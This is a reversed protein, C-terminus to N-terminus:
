KENTTIYKADFVAVMAMNVIDKVDSGMQLIHVPKQLGLLIPGILEDSDRIGDMMRYSINGANLNPFILTNAATGALKSFPYNEKIKDKSLAIDAQFEGDVVMDPYKHHLMKVAQSVGRPSPMDSSGMNSYSLLAIRPDTGFQKVADHTLKTIEVIEEATPDENLAVDSLFVPGHHTVVIMMGVARTTEDRLDIVQLIPKASAAYSRTYGTVMADADGIDVMASGFYNRERMKKKADYLRVGRRQKKKWYHNAYRERHAASEESKPDYIELNDIDLNLDHEQILYQIKAKDGLLVLEAVGDEKCVEAAKLVNFEDAECFVLRKTSSPATSKAQLMKTIENTVGVRAELKTSYSEWDMETLKAVGSEMAAKGVAMSVQVALRPDFPKPIFYDKGFSLNMENYVSSVEQPVVEKALNAVAHVAAIKMEMNITSARVDLAGRFIYPFGLVNNVQNPHDSRGTSMLVDDRTQMALDYDIEPTPNAMAFVIPDKAMSLLMEPSLVDGKSLGIFVDSDKLAEELTYIPQKTAFAKKQESLSDYRDRHIIGKSDAMLINEQKAGLEIYINSCSIAAAGAGNVVIRVDEIKKNALELANLLAAGSIIATGHQDDHMVPIDLENKLREEIKFAEPAKIDELNIGGFTPAIAKVIEVFKDPNKEDVEIDFVDIDAFIKFLLGKGEMVPKSAEAGIDGLGLVATGNSIVAVLNGKSTYDYAKNRDKEIELCPEAVGPSYALALDKQTSHPKIPVVELKGPKPFQHYDLAQKKANKKSM